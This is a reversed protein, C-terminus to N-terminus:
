EARWHAFRVLKNEPFSIPRWITVLSDIKKLWFAPNHQIREEYAAVQSNQMVPSAVIYKISHNSNSHDSSPLMQGLIRADDLHGLAIAKKFEHKVVADFTLVGLSPDKLAPIQAHELSAFLATMVSRSLPLARLPAKVYEEVAKAIFTERTLVEPVIKASTAPAVVPDSPQSNPQFVITEVVAVSAAAVPEATAVPAVEIKKELKEPVPSTNVPAVEVSVDNTVLNNILKTSAGVVSRFGQRISSLFSKGVSKVTTALDAVADVAMAGLLVANVTANALKSNAKPTSLEVPPNKPTVETSIGQAVAKTDPTPVVENKASTPVRLNYKALIEKYQMEYSAPNLMDGAALIASERLFKAIETRGEIQHARSLSESLSDNIKDFESRLKVLNDTATKIKSIVHNVASMSSTAAQIKELAIDNPAEGRSLANVAERLPVLIGLRQRVTLNTQNDLAAKLATLGYAEHIRNLGGQPLQEEDLEVQAVREQPLVRLRPPDTRVSPESPKERDIVRPSTASKALVIM